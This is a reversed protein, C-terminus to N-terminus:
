VSRKGILGWSAPPSYVLGRAPGPMKKLGHPRDIWLPEPDRLRGSLLVDLGKRWFLWWYTLFRWPVKGVWPDFGRDVAEEIDRFLNLNLRGARAM